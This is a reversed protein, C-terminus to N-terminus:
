CYVLVVRRAGDQLNGKGRHFLAGGIDMGCLEEVGGADEQGGLGDEDELGGVGGGLLFLACEDVGEEVAGREEGEEGPEDDDLVVFEIVVASM